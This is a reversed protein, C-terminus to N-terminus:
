EVKVNGAQALGALLDTSAASAVVAKVPKSPWAGQAM